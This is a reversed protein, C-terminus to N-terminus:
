CFGVHKVKLDHRQCVEKHFECYNIYTRDDSGCVPEIDSACRVNAITSCIVTLPGKSTSKSALVTTKRVDMTTPRTTIFPRTYGASACTGNAVFYIVSNGCVAQALLCSNYYDTGDSGCVVGPGYLQCPAHIVSDCPLPSPFPYQCYGVVFLLLQLVLGTTHGFMNFTSFVTRTSSM